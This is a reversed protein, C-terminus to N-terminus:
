SKICFFIDQDDALGYRRVTEHELEHSFSDQNVGFGARELRAKYDRGYIRVHDHQGFIRERDEPEVVQPDEFTEDRTNDIPSQLIAWGGSRLVRFLEKLATHDDLVHELVHNCLDVDFSDDQLPISTIDTSIAAFPSGIDASIYDLNLMSRLNRQFAYEPAFHLVKLEDTFISTRERLYLWLLRHRELSGCKPCRANERRGGQTPLFKRFHGDCCPCAVQSGALFVSILPRYLRYYAERLSVLYSRPLHAKLLSQFGLM